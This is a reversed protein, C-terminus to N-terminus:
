QARHQALTEEHRDFVPQLTPDYLHAHVIERVPVHITFQAAVAGRDRPQESKQYHDDLEALVGDYPTKLHLALDHEGRYGSVLPTIHLDSGHPSFLSSSVFAPYGVYVKRDSLTIAIPLGYQYSAFLVNALVPAPEASYMATIRLDDYELGSIGHALWHLLAPIAIAVFLAVVMLALLGATAPRIHIGLGKQLLHAVGDALYVGAGWSQLILAALGIPIVSFAATFLFTHYGQTLRLRYRLWFLRSSFVYGVVVAGVIFIASHFAM